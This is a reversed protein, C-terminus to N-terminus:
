RKIMRPRLEEWLTPISERKRPLNAGRKNRKRRAFTPDQDIPGDASVNNIPTDIAENTLGQGEVKKMESAAMSGFSEGGLQAGLIDSYSPYAKPIRGMLPLASRKGKTEECSISSSWDVSVFIFHSFM